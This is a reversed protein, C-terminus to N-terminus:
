KCSKKWEKTVYEGLTGAAQLKLMEDMKKSHASPNAELIKSYAKMASELGALGVAAKDSSKEPHEIATKAMSSMEISMLEGAYKYNKEWPMTASCVSISIDPVEILWRLLWQQEKKDAGLPNSEMSNALTVARQREEATSPGRSSQALLVASLAFILLLVTHLRRM